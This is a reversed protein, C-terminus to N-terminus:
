IGNGCRRESFFRQFNKRLYPIRVIPRNHAEIRRVHRSPMLVVWDDPRNSGECLLAFFSITERAKRLEGADDRGERGTGYFRLMQWSAQGM